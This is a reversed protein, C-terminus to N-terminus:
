VLSSFLTGAAVGLWTALKELIPKVKIFLNKSVDLTRGADELTETM